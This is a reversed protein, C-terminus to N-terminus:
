NEQLEEILLVEWKGEETQYSVVAEKIEKAVPLIFSLIAENEGEGYEYSANQTTSSVTSGDIGILECKFSDTGGGRGPVPLANGQKQTVSREVGIIGPAGTESQKVLRVMLYVQSLGSRDTMVLDNRGTDGSDSKQTQTTETEVAAPTKCSVTGLCLMLAAIYVPRIYKKLNAM